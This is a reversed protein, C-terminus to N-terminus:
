CDIVERLIEDYKSGSNMEVPGGGKETIGGDYLPRAIGDLPFIVYLVFYPPLGYSDGLYPLAKRRRSSGYVGTWWYFSTKARRSFSRPELGRGDRRVSIANKNIQTKTETGPVSKPEQPKWRCGGKPVM